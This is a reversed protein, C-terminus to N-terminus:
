RAACDRLWRQREREQERQWNVCRWATAKSLAGPVSEYVGRDLRRVRGLRVQYRLLDSVRKPGVADRGFVDALADVVQGVTVPSGVVLLHGIVARRLDVLRLAAAPRHPDPPDETAAVRM